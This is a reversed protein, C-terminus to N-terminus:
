CNYVSSQVLQHAEDLTNVMAFQLNRNPYIKLFMKNFATIIPNAGIIITMVINGHMKDRITSLASFFGSPYSYNNRVDIIIYIPHEVSKAFANTQRISAYFETVTWAGKLECRVITQEENDWFTHITM